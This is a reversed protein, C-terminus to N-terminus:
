QMCQMGCVGARLSPNRAGFSVTDSIEVGFNVKSVGKSM